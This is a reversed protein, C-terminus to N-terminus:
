RWPGTIDVFAVGAYSTLPQSTSCYYQAHMAQFKRNEAGPFSQLQAAPTIVSSLDQPTTWLGPIQMRIVSVTEMIHVGNPQVILANDVPSPYQLPGRGSYNQGLWPFNIGYPIKKGVNSSMDRALAIGDKNNGAYFLTHNGVLSGQSTAQVTSLQNGASVLTTAYTDGPNRKVGDGFFYSRWFEYSYSSNIVENSENSSEIIKLYVWFAQPDAYIIWPTDRYSTRARLSWANGREAFFGFHNIGTDLGGVQEYADVLCYMGYSASCAISNDVRLCCKSSEVAEMRFVAKQGDASSYPKSWQGQPAAKVTMAGSAAGSSPRADSVHAKGTFTTATIATIWIECNFQSPTAGSVLVIQDIRYGHGSNVTGVFTDSASDYSLGDLSRLNFGTVLCADLIGVFAGQTATIKGLGVDDSRFNKVPYPM